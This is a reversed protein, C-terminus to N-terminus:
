GPLERVGDALLAVDMEHYSVLYGVYLYRRFLVYRGIACIIRPTETSRDM